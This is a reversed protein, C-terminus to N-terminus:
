IIKEYLKPEEYYISLINIEQTTIYTRLKSLHFNSKFITMEDDILNQAHKRCTEVKINQM